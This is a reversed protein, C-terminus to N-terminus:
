ALPPPAATITRTVSAQGLPPRHAMGALVGILAIDVLLMVPLADTMSGAGAATAFGVFGGAVVAVGVPLLVRWRWGNKFAKVGFYIELALTIM